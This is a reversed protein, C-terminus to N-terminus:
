NMLETVKQKFCEKERAITRRCIELEDQKTALTDITDAFIRDLGSSQKIDIKLKEIEKDYNACKECLSRWKVFPSEVTKANIQANYNELKEKLAQKQENFKKERLIKQEELKSKEANKRELENQLKKYEDQISSVRTKVSIIEDNLKSLNNEYEEKQSKQEDILNKSSKREENLKAIEKELDEIQDNISENKVQVEVLDSKLRNITESQVKETSEYVSKLTELKTQLSLLTRPNSAKKDDLTIKLQEHEVEAQTIQSELNQKDKEFQIDKTKIENHLTETQVNLELIEDDFRKLQNQTFIKMAQIKNEVKKRKETEQMMEAENIKNLIDTRQNELNEKKSFLNKQKEKFSAATNAVSTANASLENVTQQLKEIKNEKETSREVFSKTKQELEQKEEQLEAINNEFDAISEDVKKQDYLLDDYAMKRQDLELKYEDVLRKAKSHQAQVSSLLEDAQSVDDIESQISKENLMLKDFLAQLKQQRTDFEELLSAGAAGIQDIVTQHKQAENQQKELEEEVAKIKAILEQKKNDDDVHEDQNTQEEHITEEEESSSSYGELIEKSASPTPTIVSAERSEFDNDITKELNTIFNSFKGWLSSM